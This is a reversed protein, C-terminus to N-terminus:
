GKLSKLHKFYARKACETAFTLKDDLQNQYLKKYMQNTEGAILKYIMEKVEDAIAFKEERSLNILGKSVLYKYMAENLNVELLDKKKDAEYADAFVKEKEEETMPKDWEQLKLNMYRVISEKRELSTMYAKTWGNFTKVSLGMFEGYNGAAGQKFIIALEEFTINPFEDLVFESFTLAMNEIDLPQAKYGTINVSIAINKIIERILYNSEVGKIKTGLFAEIQKKEEPEFTTPLNKVEEKLQLATNVITALEKM